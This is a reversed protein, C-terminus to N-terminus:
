QKLYAPNEWLLKRQIKFYFKSIEFLFAEIKFTEQKKAFLIDKPVSTLGFCKATFHAEKKHIMIPFIQRVIDAPLVKNLNEEPKNQILHVFRSLQFYFYVAHLIDSESYPEFRIEKLINSIEAEQACYIKGSDTVAFIQPHVAALPAHSKEIVSCFKVKLLSSQSVTIIPESFNDKFLVSYDIQNM